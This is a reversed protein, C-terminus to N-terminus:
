PYIFEGDTNPAFPEALTVAELNIEGYIHPFAEGTSFTEYRLEAKLLSPDIHLLVLDTQGRYFKNASRAVQEITSCHIFGETQLSEAFYSGSQQAAEWHSRPTLHFIPTM